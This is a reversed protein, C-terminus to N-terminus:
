SNASNVTLRDELKKAYEQKIKKIEEQIEPEINNYAIEGAMRGSNIVDRLAKLLNKKGHYGHAQPHYAGPNFKNAKHIFYYEGERRVLVSDYSREM